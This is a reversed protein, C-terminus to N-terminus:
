FVVSLRLGSAGFGLYTPKLKYEPKIVGANKEIEDNINKQNNMVRMRGRNVAIKGFTYGMAIALPYDGAWHVGNNLMQYGCLAMLGYGLPKIFKKEPYNMSIVTTTMMAISLHGSPFADYSPVSRHYEKISPFWRWLDKNDNRMATSRGTLHKLIQVYIGTAIIGESLQSATQRARPDKTILGYVYFSGNVAMETIGDGIYYLGSALDTPVYFDVGNVPSINKANNETSLNIYRGFQQAAATIKEDFVILLATSAAVGAIPVISEKKFLSKPMLYLDQVSHKLYSFTRPKVYYYSLTDNINYVKAHSTNGNVLSQDIYKVEQSSVLSIRILLILLIFLIKKM